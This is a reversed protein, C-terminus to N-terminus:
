LFSPFLRLLFVLFLLAVLSCLSVFQSSIKSSTWCNPVSIWSSRSCMFCHSKSLTMWEAFIVRHPSACLRSAWLYMAFAFPSTSFATLVLFELPSSPPFYRAAAIPSCGPFGSAQTQLSRSVASPPLVPCIVLLGASTSAMTLLAQCFICEPAPPHMEM